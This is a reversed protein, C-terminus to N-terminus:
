LPPMSPYDDTERVANEVARMAALAVDERWPRAIVQAGVPLGVSGLEAARAAREMGDMSRKRTSEEGSRVRTVPVIGTPYGLVNYLVAYAGATVLNGSLGHPFAPVASAPGIIVDFPGGDDTDLAQSFSRRYAEVEEVLSLYHATNRHGFNRLMAAANRQGGARLLVSLAALSVRSRRALFMLQGIRPDVKDRRLLERAFQAGDAGLV